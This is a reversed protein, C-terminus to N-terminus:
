QSLHNSHLHRACQGTCLRSSSGALPRQQSSCHCMHPRSHAQGQSHAGSGRPRGVGGTIRGKEGRGGRGAAHDPVSLFHLSQLIRTQWGTPPPLRSYREGALPAHQSETLNERQETEERLTQLASLQAQQKGPGIAERCLDEPKDARAKESQVAGGQHQGESPNWTTVLGQCISPGSQAAPQHSFTTAM